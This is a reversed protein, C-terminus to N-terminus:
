SESGAQPRRAPRPKESARFSPPVFYNGKPRSSGVVATRVRQFIFGEVEVKLDEVKLLFSWCFSKLGSACLGVDHGVGRGGGRHSVGSSIDGNSCGNSSGLACLRACLCLLRSDCLWYLFVGGGGVVLLVCFGGCWDLGFLHLSAIRIALVQPLPRLLGMAIAVELVSAATATTVGAATTIEVVIVPFRLHEMKLASADDSEDGALGVLELVKWLAAIRILHAFLHTM